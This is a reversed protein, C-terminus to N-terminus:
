GNNNIRNLVSEKDLGYKKIQSAVSAQKVFEDPVAIHEYEATIGNEAILEAAAAPDTMCVSAPMFRRAQAEIAEVNSNASLSVVDYGCALAVDCAQSGVSGTSGLIMLKLHRADNKM